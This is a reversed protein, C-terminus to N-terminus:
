NAFIWSEDSRTLLFGPIRLKLFEFLPCMLNGYNRFNEFHWNESKWLYYKEWSTGLNERVKGLLNMLFVPNWPGSGTWFISFNLLEWFWGFLIPISWSDFKLWKPIILVGYVGILVNFFCPFVCFDSLFIATNQARNSGTKPQLFAFTICSFVNNIATEIETLLAAPTTWFINPSM